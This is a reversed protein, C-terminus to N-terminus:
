GTSVSDPACRWPQRVATESSRGLSLRTCTQSTSTSNHSTTGPPLAGCRASSGHCRALELYYRYRRERVADEDVAAALREFAYARITELMSLRTPRDLDGERVLMSKAVLRDLTDLDGGTIAKAADITAGGALLAFRAFCTREDEDLLEHSWAVTARLTQHRSPADRPGHGLVAPIGELRDAIEAPSIVGCRAAALEIALPLGDLKRCIRVIPAANLHSLAFTSDRARAREVFLAVAAVDALAEPDEDGSPEPVSLPAIAYRREAALGLPPTM